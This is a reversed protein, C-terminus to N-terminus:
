LVTYLLVRELAVQLRAVHEGREPSRVGRWYDDAQGLDLGLFYRSKM